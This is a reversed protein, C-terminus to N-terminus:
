RPMCVRDFDLEGSQCGACSSQCGDLGPGHADCYVLAGPCRIPGGGGDDTSWALSTESAADVSKEDKRDPERGPDSGSCALIGTLVFAAGFRMM